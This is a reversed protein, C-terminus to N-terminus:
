KQVDSGKKRKGNESENEADRTKRVDDMLDALGHEALDFRDGILDNAEDDDEPDREYNKVFVIGYAMLYNAVSTYDYENEPNKQMLAIRLQTLEYNVKPAITLTRRIHTLKKSDISESGMNKSDSLISNLTIPSRSSRNNGHLKIM